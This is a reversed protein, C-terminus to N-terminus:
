HQVEKLIEEAWVVQRFEYLRSHQIISEAAEYETKYGLLEAVGLLWKRAEEITKIRNM